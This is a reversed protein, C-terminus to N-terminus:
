YWFIRCTEVQVSIKKKDFVYM